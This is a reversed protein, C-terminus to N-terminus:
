VGAVLRKKSEMEYNSEKFYQSFLTKVFLIRSLICFYLFEIDFLKDADCLILKAKIKSFTSCARFIYKTPTKQKM